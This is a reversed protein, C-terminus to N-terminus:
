CRDGWGRGQVVQKEQNGQREKSPVGGDVGEGLASVSSVCQSRGKEGGYPSLETLGVGQPAVSGQGGRGGGM